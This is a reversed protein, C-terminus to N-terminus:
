VFKYTYANFCNLLLCAITMPGVGKPVPTIWSCKAKVAEFDVDGCLKGDIRHIGVDIIVAGEKVWKTNILRPSGVAAILLDAQKTLEWPNKTRSHINIVTANRHMLLKALPSGVLLSRGVVAALAGEFRFEISELLKIVGSPTCPIQAPKNMVLLGQNTPSLGDVDKNPDILSIIKFSDIHKPLPLQVLIGDVKPDENLQMILKSIDVQTSNADKHVTVSDIGVERCAKEKHQVYIKSAPDDGVLVVALYPKRHGQNTFQTIQNKLQNQLNKAVSSGDIIQSM